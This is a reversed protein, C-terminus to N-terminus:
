TRIPSPRSKNGYGINVDESNRASRKIVDEVSYDNPQVSRASHIRSSHQEITAGRPKHRRRATTQEPNDNNEDIRASTQFTKSVRQSNQASQPTSANIANINSPLSLDTVIVRSPRFSSNTTTEEPLVSLQKKMLEIRQQERNAERASDRASFQGSRASAPGPSALPVETSHIKM